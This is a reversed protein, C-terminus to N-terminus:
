VELEQHHSNKKGTKVSESVIMYKKLFELEQNLNTAIDVWAARTQQSNHYLKSSRDWLAEHAHVEVILLELM